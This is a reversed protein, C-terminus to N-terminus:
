GNENKISKGEWFTELISWFDMVFGERFDMLNCSREFWAFTSKQLVRWAFHENKSKLITDFDMYFWKLLMYFDMAFVIVFFIGFYISFGGWSAKLVRWFGGWSAELVRWFRRLVNYKAASMRFFRDGLPEGFSSWDLNSDMDLKSQNEKGFLKWFSCFDILFGYRIDILNWIREFLVFTQNKCYVGHSISM